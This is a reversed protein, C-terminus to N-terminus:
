TFSTVKESSVSSYAFNVPAMSSSTVARVHSRECEDVALVVRRDDTVRDCLKRVLDDARHEDAAGLLEAPVRLVAHREVRADSLRDFSETRLEDDIEGVLRDEPGHLAKPERALHEVAPM